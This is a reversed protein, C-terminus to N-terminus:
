KVMPSPSRPLFTERVDERIVTSFVGHIAEHLEEAVERVRDPDSPNLGGLFLEDADLVLEGSGQRAPRAQLAVVEQFRGPPVSSRTREVRLSFPNREELLAAPIIAADAAIISRLLFTEPDITIANIYRVGIQAIEDPKTVAVYSQLSTIATRLLESWGPHGGPYRKPLVSVGLITAGVTMVMGGDHRSFRKIEPAARVQVGRDPSLEISAGPVNGTMPFDNQVRDHLKGFYISDWPVRNRAFTFALVAEVLPPKEYVPVTRPADMAAFNCVQM